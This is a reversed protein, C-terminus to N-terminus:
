MNSNTYKEIVARRREAKKMMWDVDVYRKKGNIEKKTSGLYYRSVM